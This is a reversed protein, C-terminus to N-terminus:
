TQTLLVLSFYRTVNQDKRRERVVFTLIAVKMKQQKYCAKQKNTQNTPQNQNKSVPNRQTISATSSSM